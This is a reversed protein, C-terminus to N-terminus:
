EVGYMGMKDRLDGLSKDYQAKSIANKELFTDLLKKQKLFLQKKKEEPSLSAWEIQETSLTDM